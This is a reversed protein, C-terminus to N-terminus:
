VPKYTHINTQIFTPIHIHTSVPSRSSPKLHAITAHLGSRAHALQAIIQWFKEGPYKRQCNGPGLLIHFLPGFRSSCFLLFLAHKNIYKPARNCGVKTKRHRTHRDLGEKFRKLSLEASCEPFCLLNLTSVALM